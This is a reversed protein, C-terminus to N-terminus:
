YRKSGTHLSHVTLAERRLVTVDAAACRQVHGVAALKRCQLRCQGHVHLKRAKCSKSYSPEAGGSLSVPLPAASFTGLRRLRETGECDCNWSCHAWEAAGLVQAACRRLIMEANADEAFAHWTSRVFMYSPCVEVKLRAFKASASLNGAHCPM